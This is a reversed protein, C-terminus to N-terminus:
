RRYAGPLIHKRQLLKAKQRSSFLNVLPPAIAVLAFVSFLIATQRCSTAAEEMNGRFDFFPYRANFLIALVAFCLVGLLSIGIAFTRVMSLTPAESNFPDNAFAQANAPPTQGTPTNNRQRIEGTPMKLATTQKMVSKPSNNLDNAMDYFM